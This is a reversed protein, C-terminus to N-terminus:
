YCISGEDDDEFSDNPPQSQSQQHSISSSQRRPIQLSNENTNDGNIFTSEAQGESRNFRINESLPIDEGTHTSTAQFSSLSQRLSDFSSSTFNNSLGPSAM